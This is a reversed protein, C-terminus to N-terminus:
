KMGRYILNLLADQVKQSKNANEHNFLMVVLQMQNNQDLVYGAIASVYDITGTKLHMNYAQLNRNKITGDTASVPLSSVFEPMLPHEWMIKLVALLQQATVRGNRSLGAGNDLVMGETIVKNKNLWNIVALQAGALTHPASSSGQQDLALFLMRAMLNNSFKNIDVIMNTLLASEHRALLQANAPTVANKWSGTISGGLEQWISTFVGYLYDNLEMPALYWDKSECGVAFRGQLLLQYQGSNKTVRANILNKWNGCNSNNSLKIESIIKLNSPIPESYVLVNNSSLQAKLTIRLAKFGLMLSDPDVNYARLPQGDFSIPDPPPINYLSQDFVVNGSIERIGQARVRRLLIWLNEISFKPDGGGKIYIDGNLVGSTTTATTLVDTYWVYNPTLLDLAAATTIIKTVSAPNFAMDPNIAVTPTSKNVNQVIIGVASIPIKANDLEDQISQPLNTNELIKKQALSPTFILICIVSFYFLKIKFM